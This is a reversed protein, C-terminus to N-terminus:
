SSYETGIFQVAKFNNLNNKMTYSILSMIEKAMKHYGVATLHQNEYPTGDFLESYANLDILFVDATANAIERIKENLAIYVPNTNGAYCPIITCLFVKIGGSETKLKNIINNINSEFTSVTEELTADGMFGIDNIGLHIIAFDFGSCDLTTSVVNGEGAEPAMSWVWEGNVWTGYQTNSDLSAEYWTKSTLGAIGANVIDVGTLRKLISPYSYKKIVVEGSSHNFVGETISDGICLGRNFVQIENGSYEIPTEEPEELTTTVTCTMSTAYKNGGYERNDFFYIGKEAINLVEGWANFSIDYTGPRTCILVVAIVSNDNTKTHQYYIQQLGSTKAPIVWNGHQVSSDLIEQTIEFGYNLSTNKPVIVSIEGGVLNLEGDPIDAVKVFAKGNATNLVWTYADSDRDGDYTYEVKETVTNEEELVVGINARAQAKQEETLTQETFLVASDLSDVKNRLQEASEESVAGINTRAQAKQEDTLTQETYLIAEINQAREIGDDMENLHDATLTQGNEFYHKEYAM